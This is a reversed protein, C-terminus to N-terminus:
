GDNKARAVESVGLTGGAGAKNMCVVTQGIIAEVKSAMLRAAVDTTGGASFNILLKVPKKPWDAAVAGGMLLSLIGVAMCGIAIRKKM